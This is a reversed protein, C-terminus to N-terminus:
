DFPNVKISVIWKMLILLATCSSYEIGGRGGGGMRKADKGDNMYVWTRYTCITRVYERM